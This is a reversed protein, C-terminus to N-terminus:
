HSLEWKGFIFEKWVAVFLKGVFCNFKSWGFLGLNNCSSFRLFVTLRGKSEDKSEGSM